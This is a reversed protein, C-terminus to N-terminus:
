RDTRCREADIIASLQRAAAAMQGEGNVVVYQFESMRRCEERVTGARKMLEAPADTKRRILRRVLETESSAAIFATVCDPMLRRVTATGQLALFPVKRASAIDCSAADIGGIM